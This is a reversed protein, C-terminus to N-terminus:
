DTDRTCKRWCRWIWKIRAFTRSLLLSFSFFLDLAGAWAYVDFCMADYCVCVWESLNPSSQLTWEREACEILILFLTLSTSRRSARSNWVLGFCCCFFWVEDMHIDTSTKWKDYLMITQLLWDLEFHLAINRFDTSGFFFPFYTSLTKTHTHTNHEHRFRLHTKEKEFEHGIYVFVYNVFSAKKERSTMSQGLNMRMMQVWTFCVCLICLICCVFAFLSKTHKVEWAYCLVM